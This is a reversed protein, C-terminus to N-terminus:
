CHRLVPTHTHTLSHTYCICSYIYLCVVKRAYMCVYIFAYIWRALNWGFYSSTVPVFSPSVVWVILPRLKNLDLSEPSIEAQKSSSTVFNIWKESLEQRKSYASYESLTLWSAARRSTSRKRGWIQYSRLSKSVSRQAGPVAKKLTRSFTQSFCLYHCKEGCFRSWGLNRKEWQRGHSYAFKHAVSMFALSFNVLIRWFSRGM